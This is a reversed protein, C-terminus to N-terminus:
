LTVEVMVEWRKGGGCDDGGSGSGDGVLEVMVIVIRCTSILAYVM